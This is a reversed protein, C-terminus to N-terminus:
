EFTSWISLNKFNGMAEKFNEDSEHGRSKEWEEKKKKIYFSHQNSDAKENGNGHLLKSHTHFFFRFIRM